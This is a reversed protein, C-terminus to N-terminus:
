YNCNEVHTNDMIANVIESIKFDNAKKIFSGLDIDFHKKLQLCFLIIDNSDFNYKDGPIIYDYVLLTMWMMNELRYGPQYSSEGGYDSWGYIRTYTVYM